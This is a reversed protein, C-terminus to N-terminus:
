HVTPPNARLRGDAGEISNALAQLGLVTDGVGDKWGRSYDGTATITSTHQKITDAAVRIASALAALPLSNPETFADLVAQTSAPLKTSM